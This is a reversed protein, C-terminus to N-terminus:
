ESQREQLWDRLKQLAVNRHSVEHKYDTDEAFTKDHGDPVFMPDYGFGGDGRPEVLTGDVRGSFTRIDQTEPDYVAIAARFAAVTGTDALRLLNEKGVKRDFFATNIGPFGNLADVFLGSDDAMVYSGLLQSNDVAQEVKATAIQVLDDVCPEVMAVDLQQVSADMDSLIAQADDVKGGNSTAFYLEM